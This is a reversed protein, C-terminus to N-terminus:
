QDPDKMKLDWKEKNERELNNERQDANQQENQRGKDM